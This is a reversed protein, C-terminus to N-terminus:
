EAKPAVKKGKKGKKEGKKKAEKKPAQCKDGECCKKEEAKVVKCECKDACTCTAGGKCECAAQAASVGLIAVLAILFQKM